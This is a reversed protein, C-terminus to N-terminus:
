APGLRGDVKLDMVGVEHDGVEVVHHRGEGEPHEGRDVVPEGLEGAPHEVFAEALGAEGDEEDPEVEREKGHV